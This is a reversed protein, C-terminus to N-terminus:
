ENNIKSVTQGLFKTYISSYRLLEKLVWHINTWIADRDVPWENTTTKAKIYSDLIEFYMRSEKDFRESCSLGPKDQLICLISLLCIVFYDKRLFEYLNDQFSEYFQSLEESYEASSYRRLIDRHICFSLRGGVASFVSSEIEKDYTHILHLCFLSCFSEKLVIFQDEISLDAFFSLSETAMTMLKIGNNMMMFLECQFKFNKTGRAKCDMKTM